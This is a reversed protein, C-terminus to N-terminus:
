KLIVMPLYVPHMEVAEGAVVGKYLLARGMVINTDKKYTPAGVLLDANGDRNVDGAGAIAYGFSANGKNGAIMTCPLAAAGGPGGQYVFVAGEESQDVTYRYAGVAVDAYGDEDADGMLDVSVGFGAAAQDGSAQWGATTALVGDTNYFLFAAGADLMVLSGDQFTDHGRAGVLLDPYGNADPDGSCSLASGFRADAQEGAASWVPLGSLGAPGGLFVWVMGADTVGQDYYPASVAADAYGDMNFDCGGTVVLGLQAAAQDSQFSWVPDAALGGASGLFLFVAGENIQGDTFTQAGVLVDAYGDRNVDGAGSVASGFQADAALISKSWAPVASLGDKSGLYLYAAGEYGSVEHYHPAGVIVDPYGDGNVDGAGSVAAGFYSGADLTSLRRHYVPSLGAPGGLFVFAAGTRESDILFKQAGVIADPYGDQNIDGASSVSIGYEVGSDGGETVWVPVASLISTSLDAALTTGPPLLLIFLILLLHLKRPM